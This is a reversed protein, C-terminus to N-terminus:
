DKRLEFGLEKVKAIVEKVSKEGMQNINGLQMESLTLIKRVTTYGDRKLCNYARVSLDLQELSYSLLRNEEEQKEQYIETKEAIDSMNEFFNTFSNLIKAALMTADKPHISGDTTINM